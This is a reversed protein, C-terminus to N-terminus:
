GAGAREPPAELWCRELYGAGAALRTSHGSLELAWDGEPWLTALQSRYREIGDLKRRWDAESCASLVPPGVGAPLRDPERCGYPLDEYLLHPPSGPLLARAAAVARRTLVHDVHDGVAAPGYLAAVPRRALLDALRGAVDDVVAADDEAPPGTLARLRRYRPRGDPDVRYLADLFGLHEGVAGVAACACADEQRRTQVSPLDWMRHLAAALPPLTDPDGTFVSVVLVDHGAATLRAMTAGCSLVADDLHPSVFAHATAVTM